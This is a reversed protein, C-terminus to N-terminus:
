TWWSWMVGCILGVEEWWESVHEVEVYLVPSFDHNCINNRAHCVVESSMLHPFMWLVTNWHPCGAAQKIWNENNLVQTHWWTKNCSSWFWILIYPETDLFMVTVVDNNKWQFRLKMSRVGTLLGWLGCSWQTELVSAQDTIRSLHTRIWILWESHFGATLCLIQASTFM